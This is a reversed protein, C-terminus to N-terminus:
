ILGDSRFSHFQNVPGGIRGGLALYAIVGTCWSLWAVVTLDGIITGTVFQSVFPAAVLPLLILAAQLGKDQKSEHWVWGVASLTLMGGAIRYVIDLNSPPSYSLWAGLYLYVTVLAVILWLFYSEIPKPGLKNEFLSPKWLWLVMVALVSQAALGIGALWAMIVGPVNWLVGATCIITEIVLLAMLIRVLRTWAPTQRNQRTIAVLFIALAAVFGLTLLRHVYEIIVANSTFTPVIAGRCLPWDAGCGMGSKTDHDIFGMANVIFIGFVSIIGTIKIGM